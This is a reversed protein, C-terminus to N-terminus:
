LKKQTKKKRFRSNRKKNDSYVMYFAFTRIFHQKRANEVGLM